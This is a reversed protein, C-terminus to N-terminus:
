WGALAEATADDPSLARGAAYAAAFAPAALRARVTAVARDFDARKAEWLFDGVAECLADVAGVLRVAVEDRGAAAAVAALGALSTGLEQWHHTRLYLTAAEAYLGRARALEGRDRAIDGLNTLAAAIGWSDGIARFAALSEAYRPEARAGDGALRDQEGMNLLAAAIVWGHGARRAVILSEEYLARAAAEDGRAGALIGLGNLAVALNREDGLDRLLAASEVVFRESRDRDGGAYALHGAGLLALARLRAGADAGRALAAETWRLGERHHGRRFWFVWLLDVIRLAREVEGRDLAWRLAARLNDHERELWDLWHAGQPGTLLPEIAAVAALYHDAHRRRTGEAEADRAALREAAYQRTPEL